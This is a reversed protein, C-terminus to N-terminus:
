DVAVQWWVGTWDIARLEATITRAARFEDVALRCSALAYDDIIVFGGPSVKPYLSTLADMTSEYYDGDLRLVAITEIPATPLTESFWGEVFQVQDDLLGFRAFNDRVEDLPVAILGGQGKWQADAPYTEVDPQPLGQFSDCVWVRRDTVEHAALVGRMMITAGGRWVGTEVLDGPVGDALVREVLARINALRALGIMTVSEAPLDMGQARHGMHFHKEKIPMMLNGADRTLTGCLMGTLLDLYRDIATVPKATAVVEVPDGVLGVATLQEIFVGLDHELIAREVGFRAVLSDLAGEVGDNDLLAQWMTLGVADLQIYDYTALNVVIGEGGESETLTNRNVVLPATTDSM